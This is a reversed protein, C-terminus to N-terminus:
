GVVPFDHLAPSPDKVRKDQEPEVAVFLGMNPLYVVVDNYKPKKIQTESYDMIHRQCFKPNNLVVRAERMIHIAFSAGKM